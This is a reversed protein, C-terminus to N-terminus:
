VAAFFIYIRMRCPPVHVCLLCLPLSKRWDDLNPSGWGEGAHLCTHGVWLYVSIVWSGRRKLTACPINKNDVSLIERLVNCKFSPLSPLRYEQLRCSHCGAAVGRHPFHCFERLHSRQKYEGDREGGKTQGQSSPYFLPSKFASLRMFSTCYLITSYMGPPM